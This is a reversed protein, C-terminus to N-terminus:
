HSLHRRRMPGHYSRIQRDRRTIDVFVHLRYSFLYPYQKSLPPEILGAGQQEPNSIAENQLACLQNTRM